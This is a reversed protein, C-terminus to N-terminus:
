SSGSCLRGNREAIKESNKQCCFNWWDDAHPVKGQAFQLHDFVTKGLTAALLHEQRAGTSHQYGPLLFIADARALHALGVEFWFKDYRTHSLRGALDTNAHPCIPAWGLGALRSAYIAARRVNLLVGLWRLGRPWTPAAYPGALYIVPRFDQQM